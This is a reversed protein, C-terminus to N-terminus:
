DTLEARALDFVKRMVTPLDSPRFDGQAIFMGREPVADVPARAVRIALRLHFHTFTHRAEAGADQWDADLPPAPEPAEGWDSGPWGLMGGLLGSDPRRELLWAGDERRAVYAIGLRVPKAAKPLKRPLTAAIGDARAVCPERWPCIGCAPSRPTCITAGLDMVAQAYDGPREEPTHGAALATLEGKATPLPTEVAHLRAMVREVNGDVVTAPRDFAIAAIAAATYPGIGPLARLGEVSDPFTGGHEAAVVRACKLLNRARAYYGLGAWAAMVDGDEAAALDAVTPWRTTFAAFYSKVAPVTTQQLMVESLWVRYPDPREGAARAAPGTRWPLDRAHVDYWGLLEDSLSDRM